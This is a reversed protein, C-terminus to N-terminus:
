ESFQRDITRGADILALAPSPCGREWVFLPQVQAGFDAKFAFLGSRFDPTSGRLEYRDYGHEIGWKIAHEHFLEASHYEFHEETVATFLHQLTSQEDDLLYLNRGRPTGEVELTFLKLRDAFPALEVFFSHPLPTTGVRELVTAYAEYFASLTEETVREDVFEVDNENGRRIGRRRDSDMEEWIADWGCALDLTFRCENLRVRYGHERFADHYRLYHQDYTRLETLLVTGTGLEPVAELLLELAAEEDTMVVPGGYGPRMSTLRRVPGLDVVFNPLIAIPNDKKSVVLHRPEHDTGAEVARLWEYRHYACGLASQEVVNNWQNRNMTEISDHRSVELSM